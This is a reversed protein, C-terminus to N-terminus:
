MRSQERIPNADYPNGSVEVPPLAQVTCFFLFFASGTTTFAASVVAWGVHHLANEVETWSRFACEFPTKYLPRVMLHHKIYIRLHPGNFAGRGNYLVGNLPAGM